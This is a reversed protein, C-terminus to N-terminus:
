ALRNQQQKCCRLICQLGYLNRDGLLPKPQRCCTNKRGLNSKTWLTFSKFLIHVEARRPGTSTTLPSRTVLRVVFRSKQSRPLTPLTSVEFSSLGGLGRFLLPHSWGCPGRGCYDHLPSVFRPVTTDPRGDTSLKPRQALVGDAERQCPPAGPRSARPWSADSGVTCGPIIIIIISVRSPPAACRLPRTSVSYPGNISGDHSLHKHMTRSVLLRCRGKRRVDDARKNIINSSLPATTEM